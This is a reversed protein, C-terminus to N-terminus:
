YQIYPILSPGYNSWNTSAPGRPEPQPCGSVITCFSSMRLRILPYAIFRAPLRAVREDPLIRGGHAPAASVLTAWPQGAVAALIYLDAAFGAAGARAPDRAVGPVVVIAVFLFVLRAFPM